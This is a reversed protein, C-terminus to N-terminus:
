PNSNVLLWKMCVKMQYSELFSRIEKFVQMDDADMTIVPGKDFLFKDVFYVISETFTYMQKNWLLILSFPEFVHILLFNSPVYAIVLDVKNKSSVHFVFTKVLIILIILEFFLLSWDM